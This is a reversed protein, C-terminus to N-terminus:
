KLKEKVIKWTVVTGFISSQLDFSKGLDTHGNECVCVYRAGNSTIALQGFNLKEIVSHMDTFGKGRNPIQTSSKHETIAATLYRADTYLTASEGEHVVSIDAFTGSARFTEVIGVGLDCVGVTADHRTVNSVAWWSKNEPHPIGDPSPIKYAHEISNAVAEILGPYANAFGGNAQLETPLVEALLEPSDRGVGRAIKWTGANEFNSTRSQSKHPVLLELQELVIRASENVPSIAVVEMGNIAKLRDVSSCLLLAADINIWKLQKFDLVVTKTSSITLERLRNLVQLTRYRDGPNVITQELTLYKPALLKESVLM